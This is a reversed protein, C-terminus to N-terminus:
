FCIITSISLLPVMFNNSPNYIPSWYDARTGCKRNLVLLLNQQVPHCHDEIQDRKGVVERMVTNSVRM